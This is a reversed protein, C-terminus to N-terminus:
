ESLTRVHDANSFAGGGTLSWVLEASGKQSSLVEGPIVDSYEPTGTWIEQGADYKSSRRHNLPNEYKWFLFFRPLSTEWIM